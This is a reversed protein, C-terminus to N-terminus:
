RRVVVQRAVMQELKALRIDQQQRALLEENLRKELAVIRADAAARDRNSQSVAASLKQATLKQETQAQRLGASLKASETELSMLRRQSQQEQQELLEQYPYAQPVGVLTNIFKVGNESSAQWARGIVRKLDGTRIAGAQMAVGVGDTNKEAVIFDGPKVPGKVRVKVQGM